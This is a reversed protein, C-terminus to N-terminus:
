CSPTIELHSAHLFVNQPQGKYNDSKLWFQFTSMNQYLERVDVKTFIWKVTRLKNCASNPPCVFITFTIHANECTKTAFMGFLICVTTGANNRKFILTILLRAQLNYIEIKKQIIRTSATILMKLVNQVTRKIDINCQLAM